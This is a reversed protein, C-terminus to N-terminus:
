QKGGDIYGKVYGNAWISAAWEKYGEPWTDCDSYLTEIWLAATRKVQATTAEITEEIIDTM